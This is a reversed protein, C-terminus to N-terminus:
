KEPNEKLFEDFKQEIFEQMIKSLTKGRKRGEETIKEIM